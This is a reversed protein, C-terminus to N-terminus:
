KQVRFLLLSRGIGITDGHRLTTTEGGRLLRTWNILTGNLSEADRISWQGDKLEIVAHKRSIFIDYELPVDVAQDGVQRERGMWWQAPQNKSRLPFSRGERIGRILVLHALADEAPEAPASGGGRLTRDPPADPIVRSALQGLTRIEELITFLRDERLIYEKVHGGEGTAARAEVLGVEELKELHGLIAQRTLPVERGHEDRSVSIASIPKATALQRLIDLRVRNGLTSLVLALRETDVAETSSAM